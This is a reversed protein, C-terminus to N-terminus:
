KTKGTQKTSISTWDIKYKHGEIGFERLFLSGQKIQGGERM